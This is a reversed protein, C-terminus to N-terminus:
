LENSSGVGLRWTGGTNFDMKMNRVKVGLRFHIEKYSAWSSARLSSSLYGSELSLWLSVKKWKSMARIFIVISLGPFSM